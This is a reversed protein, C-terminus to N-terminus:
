RRPERLTWLKRFELGDKGRLFQYIHSSFLNGVCYSERIM